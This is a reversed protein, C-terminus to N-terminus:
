TRERVAMSSSLMFVVQCGNTILRIEVETPSMEFMRSTVSMPPTLRDQSVKHVGKVHSAQSKGTELPAPGRIVVYRIPFRPVTAGLACSSTTRPLGRCMRLPHLSYSFFTLLPFSLTLKKVDITCVLMSVTARWPRITRRLLSIATKLPKRSSFHSSITEHTFFWFSFVHPLRVSV